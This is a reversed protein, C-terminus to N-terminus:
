WSAQYEFHVDLDNESVSEIIKTLVKATHRLDEYYYEDIDTSGFFFGECPPLLNKVLHEKSEDPADLIRECTMLLRKLDDLECYIPACNAVGEALNQVFWNHIANAKRWYAVEEIVYSVKGFDIAVPKGDKTIEISGGITRHEYYAGIYIHKKLYMDLGM